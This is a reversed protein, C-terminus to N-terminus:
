PPQGTGVHYHALVRGAPLAKDYVAVEDLTGTFWETAGGGEAALVFNSTAGALSLTTPETSQAQGDFYEVAQAGDYTVVLHAWVGDSAITSSQITFKNGSDVRQFDYYATDSPEVFFLYGETPPGSEDNRALIGQYSANLVPKVWAEFSCAATGAFAFAQGMEVYGSTGDFTAATDADNAIAGPAGLTVGGVYAGDNHSTSSDKAGSQGAPEDLRWYGIPGDSLVEEAYSVPSAEQSAEPKADPPGSEVTTDPPADLGVVDPGHADAPGDLSAGEALADGSGAGDGGSSAGDGAAGDAAGANNGTLGDLPFLEGCAGVALACALLAGASPARAGISPRSPGLSPGRAGTTPRGAMVALM